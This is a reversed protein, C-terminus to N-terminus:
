FGANSLRQEIDSLRQKLSANELELANIKEQAQILKTKEEQQMRDIEQTASFNLAFLKSKDLYNFDHVQKGYLYIYNWSNDFIFSNPEDKLSDCKIESSENGSLDNSVYFKYLQNGSPDNLDNITLKYRIKSELDNIQTDNIIDKYENWSYDTLKRMENPIIYSNNNDVAMPMVEKVQQAIFGITKGNGREKKDIYDYYVCNINRLTQLSLNDPVEVINSKIRKDSVTPHSSAAVAGVVHLQYSPDDNNIGVYQNSKKIRIADNGGDSITFLLDGNSVLTGSNSNNNGLAIHGENYGNLNNGILTMNDYLHGGLAIFQKYYHNNYGIVINNEGPAHSLYGIAISNSKAEFEYNLGPIGPESHGKSGARTEYGIAICNKYSWGEYGCNIGIGRKGTEYTNFNISSLSSDGGGEAFANTGFAFSNIGVAVAGTGISLSDRIGLGPSIEIHSDRDVHAYESEMTKNLIEIASNKFFLNTTDYDPVNQTAIRVDFPVGTTDSTTYCPRFIPTSWYGNIGGFYAVGASDNLLGCAFAKGTNTIAVTTQLMNKVSVVNSIVLNSSSPLFGASAEIDSPLFVTNWTASTNSYTGNGLQGDQNIGAISIGGNKLHIVVNGQNGSVAIVNGIGNSDVNYAYESNSTNGSTPEIANGLTQSTSNRGFRGKLDQGSLLLKNNSTVIGSMQHGVFIDIATKGPTLTKYRETETEYEVFRDSYNKDPGLQYYVDAQGAVIISGDWNLAMVQYEYCSVKVISGQIIGKGELSSDFEPRRFIGSTTNSWFNSQGQAVAGTGLCNMYFGTKIELPKGFSRGLNRFAVQHNDVYIDGGDEEFYQRTTLKVVLQAKSEGNVFTEGWSVVTGEAGTGKQKVREGASPGAWPDGGFIDLTITVEPNCLVYMYGAGADAMYANTGDYDVDTQFPAYTNSNFETLVDTNSPAWGVGQTAGCYLLKGTNLIVISIFDGCAIFEANTGTYGDQNELMGTMRSYDSYAGPNAGKGLQGYHPPSSILAGAGSSLVKGSNTLFLSHHKGCAVISIRNYFSRGSITNSLMSSYYKKYMDNGANIKLTPDKESVTDTGIAISGNKHIIMHKEEVKTGSLVLGKQSHDGFRFSYSDSGSQGRWFGIESYHEPIYDYQYSGKDTSIRINSYVDSATDKNHIHLRAGSRDNYKTGLGIYGTDRDISLYPWMLGAEDTFVDTEAKSYSNYNVKVINFTRVNDQSTQSNFAYKSEDDSVWDGYASSGKTHRLQISGPTWIGFGNNKDDNHLYNPSSNTFVIHCTRHRYWGIGSEYMENLNINIGHTNYVDIYLKTNGGNIYMNETWPQNTNGNHMIFKEYYTDNAINGLYLQGQKTIMVKDGITLATHYTESDPINTNNSLNYNPASSDSFLKIAKLQFKSNNLSTNENTSSNNKIRFTIASGLNRKNYDNNTYDILIGKGDMLSLDPNSVHKNVIHLYDSPITNNIGILPQIENVDITLCSVDKIEQFEIGVESPPYTVDRVYQYQSLFTVKHNYLKGPGQHKTFDSKILFQIDASDTNPNYFTNSSVNNHSHSIKPSSFIISPITPYVGDKHAWQTENGILEFSQRTSGGLSGWQNGAGFGEYSQDDTNYRIYGFQSNTPREATTGVPIRISSNSDIYLPVDYADNLTKTEIIEDIINNEVPTGNIEKYSHVLTQNSEIKISQVSTISQNDNGTGDNAGRYNLLLYVYIFKGVDGNNYNYLEPYNSSDITASYTRYQETSSVYWNRDNWALLYSIPLNNLPERSVTGKYDNAEVRSLLTIYIGSTEPSGGADLIYDDVVSRKITVTVTFSQNDNNIKIHPNFMVVCYGECGFENNSNIYTRRDPNSGAFSYRMFECKLDYTSTGNYATVTTEFYNKGPSPTTDPLTILSGDSNYYQTNSDVIFEFYNNYNYTYQYQVNTLYPFRNSGINLNGNIVMNKDSALSKKGIYKYFTLAPPKSSNIDSSVGSSSDNYDTFNIVGNKVDFVWNGQDLPLPGGVTNGNGDTKYLEYTYPNTSDGMNFQLADTLVNQGSIDKLYYSRFQQGLSLGLDSNPVGQLILKTYKRIVGSIDELISTGLQYDCFNNNNLNISIPRKRIQFSPTPPISNLFLDQSNFYNNAVVKTEEFFALNENTNPFGLLNKFLFDVQEKLDLNSTDAM